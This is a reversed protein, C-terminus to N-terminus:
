GQREKWARRVAAPTLFTPKGADEPWVPRAQAAAEALVAADLTASTEPIGLEEWEVVFRLEGEGPLPWALYDYRTSRDDGGGGGHLVGHSDDEDSLRGAVAKAGDPWVLGLRLLGPDHGTGPRRGPVSRHLFTHVTFNFRDPYAALSALYVAARDGVALEVQLPVVGGLWPGPRIDAIPDPPLEDGDPQGFFSV